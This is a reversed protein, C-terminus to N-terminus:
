KQTCKMGRKWNGEPCEKSRIREGTDLNTWWKTNKVYLSGHKDSQTNLFGAKKIAAIQGAKRANEITDLIGLFAVGSDRLRKKMTQKSVFTRKDETMQFNHRGQEILKYQLKSCMESFDFHEHADNMRMMITIAAGLDGQDLHIQAHEKLSVCKLNKPDNNKRNGDIHHIDHGDPIVSNNHIEWIKRYNVM